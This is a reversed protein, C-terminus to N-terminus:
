SLTEPPAFSKAAPTGASVWLSHDGAVELLLGNKSRAIDAVLM